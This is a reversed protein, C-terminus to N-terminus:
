CGVVLATPKYSVKKSCVIPQNVAARNSINLAANLDANLSFGCELCVFDAQSKRNRRHSFGCAEEGYLDHVVGRNQPRM